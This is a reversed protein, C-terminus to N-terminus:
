SSLRWHTSPSSQEESGLLPLVCRCPQLEPSGLLSTMPNRLVQHSMCTVYLSISLSSPRNLMSFLLSLPKKGAYLFGQHSPTFLASLSKKSTDLSLM